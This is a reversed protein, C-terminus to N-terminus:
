GALLEDLYALMDADDTGIAKAAAAYKKVGAADELPGACWRAATFNLEFGVKADRFGHPALADLAALAARATTEDEVTGFQGQVVLELLGEANKADLSRAVGALEDDMQGAALLAKTARLSLGKANEPDVQLVWRVAPALKGVFPSDGEHKGFEAMVAEWAALKADGQAAEFAELLKRSRGLAERGAARIEALHAVYAAAGGERYGTSAYVEGDPNMLLITPFGRVGYKDMLEQNREPNPVKAKNEDKRPFDLSVLVFDKVAASQFEEFDFVEEHLKICWGCWDSGTFDVLLDKGQSRALAAAADFDQQWLVDDAFSPTALVALTGLLLSTASIPV